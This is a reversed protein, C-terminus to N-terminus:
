LRGRRGRRAGGCGLDVPSFGSVSGSYLMVIGSVARALAVLVSGSRGLFM